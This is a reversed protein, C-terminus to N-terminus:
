KKIEKTKRRVNAKLAEDIRDGIKTKSMGMAVVLEQLLLDKAQNLIEREKINIEYVKDNKALDRVIEALDQASGVRIRQKLDEYRRHWGEAATFPEEKAPSRLIKFVEEAGEADVIARLGLEGAKSVPVMVEIKRSTELVYVEVADGLIETSKIERVKSLGQLPHVCFAGAPFREM